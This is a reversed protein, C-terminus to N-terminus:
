INVVQTFFGEKNKKNKWIRNNYYTISLYSETNIPFLCHIIHIFLFSSFSIIDDDYQDDYNQKNILRM